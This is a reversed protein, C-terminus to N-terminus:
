AAKAVAPEPPVLVPLKDMGRVWRYGDPIPNRGLARMQEGGAIGTMTYYSAMNLGAMAFFEPATTFFRGINIETPCPTGAANYAMDVGYLGHPQDDVAAVALDAVRDAEVHSSTVGVGTSGSVGTTTSGANAWSERTRQQSCVLQGKWYLQQVTVSRPTLCEAITFETSRHQRWWGKALSGDDTRLSKQGGAGVRPRMWVEGHCLQATIEIPSKVLRTFPVTLGFDRWREYSRWKDRCLEIVPQRPLFTKVGHMHALSRFRGLGEVEGDSQAHIFDPKEKRIVRDVAIQWAAYDDVRPILHNTECESLWLDTESSNTGVLQYGGALRLARCFGNAAAGGAGLILVKM